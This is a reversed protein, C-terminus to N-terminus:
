LRDRSTVAAILPLIRNRDSGIYQLTRTIETIGALQLLGRAISRAMAITHVGAGAYARQHDERYATDRM